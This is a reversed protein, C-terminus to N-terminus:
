DHECKMANEHSQSACPQGTLGGEGLVLGNMVALRVHM